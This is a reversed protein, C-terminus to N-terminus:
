RPLIVIPIPREEETRLFYLGAPLDRPLSWESVGPGSLQMRARLRGLADYLEVLQAGDRPSKLWLMDSAPNPFVRLLAEEAPEEGTKVLECFQENPELEIYGQPALEQGAFGEYDVPYRELQFTFNDSLSLETGQEIPFGFRLPTRYEWAVAGQEDLEFSFGQRGACMIVHGDDMIQISSAASSFNKSSDPHSFSASVDLPLFRGDQMEYSQTTPNWAPEIIQGFSRGEDISFDLFNNFVAIQGYYEYDPDVFDDIWQSDHQYFLVHDTSDGQQYAMPNGWRWLLDGGRGSNGGTSDAAEDTTTSHDIIWIENFNRVSIMIQDLAENYDLANAHLWDDRLFTWQHYNIDIRGPHEAIIGYDLKTSDFDQVLHDWARWQWHISDTAPDVELIIESWMRLQGHALSDFGHTLMEPMEMREWTLILVHGNPMWHVDHHQRFVSDAVVFTWEVENDWNLLQVVGGAGGAGFTSNSFYPPHSKARLLKGEPTLYAVAGPRADTDEDEWQHVIRGCEDLLYATSQREPYILNYGGVSRAPDLSLVGVTNQASLVQMHFGCLIPLILILYRM